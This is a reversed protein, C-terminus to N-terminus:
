LAAPIPPQYLCGEDFPKGSQLVGYSIHILKRMIACIASKKSKGRTLLTEYWAKIAPIRRIAVLAPMYLAKRLNADGTKSLSSQNLSTGSQRQSPNLGVFAGAQKASSFNHSFVILLKNITKDSIGPITRLLDAKDKLEVHDELHKKIAEEIAKEEKKLYKITKEISPVIAPDASELHNKERVIMKTLQDLRQTLHRLLSIAETEPHWLKLPMRLAYQRIIDADVHDTKNRVLQSKMFYKIKAPNIISVDYGEAHLFTALAVAYKGTSEMCFHGTTISFDTLWNLLQKFGTENNVFSKTTSRENQEIAAVFESKGIDIGIHTKDM